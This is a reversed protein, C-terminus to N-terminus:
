SKLDSSGELSGGASPDSPRSEREWMAILKFCVCGRAMHTVTGSPCPYIRFSRLLVQENVAGPSKNVKRARSIM